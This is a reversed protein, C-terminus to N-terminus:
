QKGLVIVEETEYVAQFDKDLRMRELFYPFTRQLDIPQCNDVRLVKSVYVYDYQSRDVAVDLCSSNGSSLCEQVPYTSRVYSNFNPGEIWERGQVTQRDIGPVM